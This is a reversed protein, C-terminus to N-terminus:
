FSLPWITPAQKAIEDAREAIWEANWYHGENYRKNIKKTQIFISDSYEKAKSSFIGNKIKQNIPKHLLTMNGLNYVYDKIHTGKPLEFCEDKEWLSFSQPLIHELHIEIYNPVSQNFNDNLYCKSLIYKAIHNDQARFQKLASIFADDGIKDQEMLFPSLVEERSSNENRLRSLVLDFTKKAGGISYDGITIWRFLFSLSLRTVDELLEPRKGKVYMIVPYCTTYKLTNIEGCYALYKEKSHMCKPFTLDSSAYIALESAYRKLEKSFKFIDINPDDIHRGVNKYLEKKTINQGQIAEWYVRLFDVPSLRSDELLSIMEDWDYLLMDNKDEDGNAKMLIKNKVLDSVSLDMGKSNLSEFLLFADYDTEVEITIFKLKKVIHILVNSLEQLANEDNFSELISQTFTKRTKILRKDSKNVKLENENICYSDYNELTILDNFLENDKKNLKLFYNDPESPERLRARSISSIKRALDNNKKDRPTKKFIDPNNSFSDGLCSIVSFLISFTALRQQGDVIDFADSSEDDKKLVITGMFYESGQKYSTIIDLWLTEVESPSWSYDRQYDPVCYRTELGSLIKELSKSEPVIKM